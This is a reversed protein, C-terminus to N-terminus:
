ELERGTIAKHVAHGYKVIGQLLLLTCVLPVVMKWPWLIPGWFTRSKEMMSFSFWFSQWGYYLLVGIYLWFFMWTIMDIIGQKRLSLRNYLLDLRVHEDRAMSYVASFLYFAAFVMGTLEWSWITPADFVYRAVVEYVMFCVMALILFRYGKM